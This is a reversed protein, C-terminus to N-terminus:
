TDRIAYVGNERVVFYRGLVIKTPEFAIEPLENPGFWGVQDADDRAALEGGIIRARYFIVIGAGGARFEPFQVSSIVDLLEVIEVQLGTEELCERTAARQPDEDYDVFGGPPIWLGKRPNNARRTLLVKGNEIIITAAAVKPDIFHVWGCASCVPRLRGYAPREAVPSGCQACFKIM